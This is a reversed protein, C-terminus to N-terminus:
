IFIWNERGTYANRTEPLIDFSRLTGSDDIEELAKM